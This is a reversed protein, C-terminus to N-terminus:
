MLKGCKDLLIFTRETKRFSIFLLVFFTINLSIIVAKKLKKRGERNSLFKREAAEETVDNGMIKADAMM